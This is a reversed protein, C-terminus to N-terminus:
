VGTRTSTPWRWASTRSWRSIAWASTTTTGDPKNVRRSLNMVWAGDTESRYPKSIFLGLDTCDAHAKFYSRDAYGAAEAAPGSDFLAVGHEDTVVIPDFSPAATTRDVLIRHRLAPAAALITPDALGDVVRRLSLDYLELNRALDHALASSLNSVAVSAKERETWLLAFCATCITLLTAALVAEAGRISLGYVSVPPHPPGSNRM